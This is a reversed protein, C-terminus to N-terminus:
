LNITWVGTEESGKTLGRWVWVDVVRTTGDRAWATTRGTLQLGEDQVHPQEWRMWAIVTRQVDGVSVFQNGIMPTVVLIGGFPRALRMRVQPPITAPVTSNAFHINLGGMVSMHENYAGWGHGIYPPMDSLVPKVVPRIFEQHRLEVALLQLQQEPRGATTPIDAGLSVAM